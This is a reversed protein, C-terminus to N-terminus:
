TLSYSDKDRGTRHQLGHLLRWLFGVIFGRNNRDPVVDLHHSFVRLAAPAAGAHYLCDSQGDYHPALGVMNMEFGGQGKATSDTLRILTQRIGPTAGGKVEARVTSAAGCLQKWRLHVHHQSRSSEATCGNEGGNWFSQVAAGLMMCLGRMCLFDGVVPERRALAGLGASPPIYVHQAAADVGGAGAGLSSARTPHHKAVGGHIRQGAYVLGCVTAEPNLTTFNSARDFQFGTISAPRGNSGGRRRGDLQERPPLSAHHKRVLKGLHKASYSASHRSESAEIARTPSLMNPLLVAVVHGAADGDVDGGEGVILTGVCGGPASEAVSVSAFGIQTSPEPEDPFFPFAEDDDYISRLWRMSDDVAHPCRRLRLGATLCILGGGADFPLPVTLRVGM